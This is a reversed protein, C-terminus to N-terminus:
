RSTSDELRGESIIGFVATQTNGEVEVTDKGVVLGLRYISSFPKFSEVRVFNRIDINRVIWAKKPVKEGSHIYDLLSLLLSHFFVPRILSPDVNGKECRSIHWCM